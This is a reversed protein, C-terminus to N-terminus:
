NLSIEEPLQGEFRDALYLYHRAPGDLGQRRSIDIFERKAHSFDGAYFAYLAASFKDRMSKKAARVEYADGDYVEYVRILATGDRAKGVYRLGYEKAGEAVSGTCLINADLTYALEVLRRATNLCASVVTPVMHFQDGVIGMMATGYDIAIRLSVQSSGNAEREANLELIEQRIAVAAGMAASPGNEFVADFGDYTFNYIAGANQTVKAGIREFIENINDFLAQTESEYVARAFRLSVTMMAMTHSASTSKGVQALNAVGLYTILQQPLFRMYSDKEASSDGDFRQMAASMDNFARALAEAEDGSHQVVRVSMNGRALIDLGKTVRRVGRTMGSMSLAALLVVLGATGYLLFAMRWLGATAAAERLRGNARLILVGDDTKTYAYYYTEGGRRLTHSGTGKEVALAAEVGIARLSQGTFRAVSASRAVYEGAENQGALVLLTDGLTPDVAALEKAAAALDPAEQAALERARLQLANEASIRAERRYAPEVFGFVAASVVIVALLALTMLTRLVRPFYLGNVECVLYYCGSAAFLVALVVGLLILASKWVTRYLSASVDRTGNADLAYLRGDGTLALAGGGPMLSLGAVGASPLGAADVLAWAGALAAQAEGDLGSLAAPGVAGESILGQGQAADFTYGEGRGHDILAFRVAGGTERMGAIRVSERQAPVSEGTVPRTLLLAFAEGDESAYLGLSSLAAGTREYASLLVRGSQTIFLADPEYDAPLGIIDRQRKVSGLHSVLAYNGDGQKLLAYIGGDGGMVAQAFSRRGTGDRLNAAMDLLPEHLLSFALVGFFATFLIFTCFKRLNKM